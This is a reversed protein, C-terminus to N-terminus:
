SAARDGTYVMVNLLLINVICTGRAKFRASQINYYVIYYMYIYIHTYYVCYNHRVAAVTNNIIIIV